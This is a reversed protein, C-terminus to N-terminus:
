SAEEHDTGRMELGHGKLDDVYARLADVNNCMTLRHTEKTRWVHSSLADGHPEEAEVLISVRYNTM